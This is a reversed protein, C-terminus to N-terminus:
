TKSNFYDDIDKQSKLARFKGTKFDNLSEILLKNEEPTLTYEKNRVKETYMTM